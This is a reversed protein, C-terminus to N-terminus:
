KVASAPLGGVRGARDDVGVPAAVREGGAQGEGEAGAEVQLWRQLEAGAAARV